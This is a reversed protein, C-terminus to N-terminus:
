DFDIKNLSSDKSFHIFFIKKNIFGGWNNVREFRFGTQVPDFVLTNLHRDFDEGYRQWYKSFYTFVDYGLMGYKPYTNAMEKKYWKKYKNYFVESVSSLNNAYFSTYFYTDVDYFASIYDHTYTQWEPYGFLHYEAEPKALRINQLPPLLSSLHSSKGSSAVFVTSVDSDVLELAKTGLSSMSVNSYHINRSDLEHKLGDVFTKKDNNREDEIFVINCTGFKEAFKLYVESYLYSQPTNIQFIYPNDFVEDAKSTFPIVLHIRNKKSFDSLPKIDDASMPGIIVDSERLENTGMISTLSRENSDFVNLNVSLGRQKMDYVGILLGEYFETLRSKEKGSATFPLVLSVNMVNDDHVTAVKKGSFTIDNSDQANEHVAAVKVTETESSEDYPMPIRIVSGAKFNDVSLGPNAGCIAEVSVGYVTSLRYLTEGKQITHFREKNNPILLVEGAYIKEDTKDNLKMIDKLSVNYMRAISMLTEGRDVTHSFTTNVNEQASIGSSFVCLAIFFFINLFSKRSM